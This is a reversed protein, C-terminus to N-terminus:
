TSQLPCHKKTASKNTGQRWTWSLSLHTANHSSTFKYALRASGYSPKLKNVETNLPPPRELQTKAMMGDNHTKITTFSTHDEGTYQTQIKNHPQYGKCMGKEKGSSRTGVRTPPTSRTRPISGAVREGRWQMGDVWASVRDGRRWFPGM